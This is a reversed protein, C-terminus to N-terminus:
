HTFKTKESQQLVYTNHDSGTTCESKSETNSVGEQLYGLDEAFNPNCHTISKSLEWM